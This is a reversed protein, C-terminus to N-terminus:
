LRGKESVLLMSVLVLILLACSIIIQEVVMSTDAIGRVEVEAYVSQTFM